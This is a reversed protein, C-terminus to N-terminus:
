DRVDGVPLPKGAAEAAARARGGSPQPPRAVEVM